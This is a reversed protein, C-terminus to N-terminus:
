NKKIIWHDQMENLLRYTLNVHNERRRINLKSYFFFFFFFFFFPFNYILYEQFDKIWIYRM